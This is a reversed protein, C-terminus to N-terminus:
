MKWTHMHVTISWLLGVTVGSSKSKNKVRQSTKQSRNCYVCAPFHLRNTEHLLFEFPKNFSKQPMFFSFCSQQRPNSAMQTHGKISRPWCGIFICVSTVNNYLATNKINMTRVPSHFKFGANWVFPYCVYNSVLRDYFMKSWVSTEFNYYVKTFRISSM